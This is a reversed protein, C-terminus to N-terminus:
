WSKISRALDGMNLVTFWVYFIAFISGFAFVPDGMSAGMAGAAFAVLMVSSLLCGAVRVLPSWRWRGNIKIGAIHLASGMFMPISWYEAQFGTVWEGYIEPSMVIETTALAIYTFYMAGWLLLVALTLQHDGWQRINKSASANM